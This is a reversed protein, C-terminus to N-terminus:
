NRACRFGVDDAAGTPDLKIRRTVRLDDPTDANKFSGGRAVRQDAQDPGKPNDVAGPQAYWDPKYWDQV